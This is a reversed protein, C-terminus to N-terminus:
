KGSYIKEQELDKAQCDIVEKLQEVEYNVADKSLLIKILQFGDINSRKMNEVIGNWVNEKEELLIKLENITNEYARLNNDSM